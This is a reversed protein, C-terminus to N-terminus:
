KTLLMKKVDAFSGAQIKYIYMGSPLKSANFEAEYFGAPKNENVLTAIEKGLVDYVRLTVLGEEKTTYSIKTSPNFPNPYNQYLGFDIKQLKANQGVAIKNPTFEGSTNITNTASSYTESTSNYAKVYYYAYTVPTGGIQMETDTYEYTTSNTSGTLYFTLFRPNTPTSSVARFIHYNTTTFSPHPGWVIRPNDYGNKTIVLAHAWFNAFESTTPNTGNNKIDWVRLIEGTSITTWDGSIPSIRWKFEEENAFYKIHLDPTYYGCGGGYKCDRLDIYFYITSYSNTIQYFGYAINDTYLYPHLEWKFVFGKWANSDLFSPNPATSGSIIAFAERLGSDTSIPLEGEDYEWYTGLATLTHTITTASQVDVQGFLFLYNPVLEEQAFTLSTSSFLIVLELLIIFKNM